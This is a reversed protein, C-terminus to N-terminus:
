GARGATGPLGPRASLDGARRLALRLAAVSPAGGAGGSEDRYIRCSFSVPTGPGAFPDVGNVLLTPSGHMRLRAADAEDRVAHRVLRATPHHALVEALREGIISDNRCDPVTLELM